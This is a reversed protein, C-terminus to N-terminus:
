IVVSEDDIQCFSKRSHYRTLTAIRDITCITNTRCIFVGNQRVYKEIVCEIWCNMQYQWNRNCNIQKAKVATHAQTQIHIHTTTKKEEGMNYKIVQKHASICFVDVFIYISLSPVCRFPVTLRTSAKRKSGMTIMIWVAQRRICQTWASAWMIRM